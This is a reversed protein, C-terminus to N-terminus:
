LYPVVQLTTLSPPPQLAHRLINKERFSIGRELFLAEKRNGFSSTFLVIKPTACDETKNKTQYSPSIHRSRKEFGRVCSSRVDQVSLHEKSSMGVQGQQEHHSHLRRGAPTNSGSTTYYSYIIYVHIFIAVVRCGM